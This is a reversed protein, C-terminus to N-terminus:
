RKPKVTNFKNHLVITYSANECNTCWHPKSHSIYSFHHIYTIITCVSTISYSIYLCFHNSYSIYLFSTIQTYFTFFHNSYSIYLFSTLQTHSTFVSTIQTQFTFFSTCTHFHSTLFPLSIKIFSYKVHQWVNKSSWFITRM